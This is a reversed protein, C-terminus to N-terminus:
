TTCNCRSSIRTSISCEALFCLVVIVHDSSGITITLVYELWSHLYREDIFLRDYEGDM